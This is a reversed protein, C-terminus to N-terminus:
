KFSLYTNKNIPVIIIYNEPRVIIHYNLSKVNGIDLINESSIIINKDSMNKVFILSGVFTEMNGSPLTITIQNESNQCIIFITKKLCDLVLSDNILLVSSNNIDIKDYTIKKLIKLNTDLSNIKYNFSNIVNNSFNIKDNIQKFSKVAPVSKFSM